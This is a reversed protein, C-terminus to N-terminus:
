LCDRSSSRADKSNRTAWLPGNWGGSIFEVTYGADRLFAALREGTWGNMPHFEMCIQRVRPLLESANPLIEWEAGECDLKLLDIQGIRLEDMLRALSTQRVKQAQDAKKWYLSSANGALNIEVEAESSGLAVQVVEINTLANLLKNIEIMAAFETVPEVAVIRGRPCLSGVEVAFDGMNAGVDVVVSDERLEILESSLYTRLVLAENLTGLDTTRPRVLFRTGRRTELM